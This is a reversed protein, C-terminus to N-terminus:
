GIERLAHCITNLMLQRTADITVQGKNARECDNIHAMMPGPVPPIPTSLGLALSTAAKKPRVLRITGGPTKVGGGPTVVAGAVNGGTGANENGANEVPAVFMNSTSPSLM